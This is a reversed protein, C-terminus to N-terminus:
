KYNQKKLEFHKHKPTNPGNVELEDGLWYKHWFLKSNQQQNSVQYQQCNKSM